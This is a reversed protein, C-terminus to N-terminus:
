DESLSSLKFKIFNEIEKKQDEPLGDIDLMLAGYKEFIYDRFMDDENVPGMLEGPTTHLAEAFAIIKSQPLDIHGKEIHAIASKDSYGVREALENQSIGLAIRRARINDYLQM